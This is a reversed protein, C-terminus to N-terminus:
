SLHLSVPLAFTCCAFTIVSAVGCVCEKQRNERSHLVDKWTKAPAFRAKRFFVMYMCPVEADQASDLVVAEVDSDAQLALDFSTADSALKQFSHVQKLCKSIM